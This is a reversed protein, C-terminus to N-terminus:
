RRRNGRERKKEAKEGENAEGSGAQGRKGEGTAKRRRGGAEKDGQETAGAMEEDKVSLKEVKNSLSGVAAESPSLTKEADRKGKKRNAPNVRDGKAKEEREKGGEKPTPPNKDGEKKGAENQSGPETKPESKPPPKDQERCAGSEKGQVNRRSGPQYFERDPKRPKRTLNPAGAPEQHDRDNESCDTGREGETKAQPRNGSNASGKRCNQGNSGDGRPRNEKGRDTGLGGDTCGRRQSVEDSKNECQSPKAHEQSDSSLPIPDGHHGLATTEAEGHGAMPQYRQLDPRKAERRGQQRHERHEEQEEKHCDGIDVLNSAEARLEAASIRVRDLEDAMKAKLLVFM